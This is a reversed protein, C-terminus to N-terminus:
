ITLGTQQNDFALFAKNLAMEQRDQCNLSISLALHLLLLVTSAYKPPRRNSDEGSCQIEKLDGHNEETDGSIKISSHGVPWTRNRVFREQKMFTALM